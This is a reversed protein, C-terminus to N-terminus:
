DLLMQMMELDVLKQIPVTILPPMELKPANQYMIKHLGACSRSDKYYMGYKNKQGAKMQCIKKPPSFYVVSGEVFHGIFILQDM